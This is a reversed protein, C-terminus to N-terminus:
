AVENFDRVSFYSVIDIHKPAEPVGEKTPFFTGKVVGSEILHQCYRGIAWVEENNLGSLVKGHKNVLSTIYENRRNYPRLALARIAPDRMDDVFNRTEFSVSEYESAEM